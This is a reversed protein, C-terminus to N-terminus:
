ALVARLDDSDVPKGTACEIMRMGFMVGPGIRRRIDHVYELVTRPTGIYDPRATEFYVKAEHIEAPTGYGLVAPDTTWRVSIKSRRNM